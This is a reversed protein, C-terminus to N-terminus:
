SILLPSVVYGHQVASPWVLKAVSFISNVELRTAAAQLFQSRNLTAEQGLETAASLHSLEFTTRIFGQPVMFPIRDFVSTIFLYSANHLKTNTSDKSLSQRLCSIAAELAQQLLPIFENRLIDVISALCYLSLTRLPLDDSGLCNSGMIVRAANYTLM